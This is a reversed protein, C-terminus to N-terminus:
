LIREKLELLEEDDPLILLWDSLEKDARERQGNEMYWEILLKSFMVYEQERSLAGSLRQGLSLTCECCPIEGNELQTWLADFAEQYRRLVVSKVVKPANVMLWQLHEKMMIKASQDNMQAFIAVVMRVDEATYAKAEKLICAAVPANTRYQWDKQHQFASRYFLEKTVPNCYSGYLEMLRKQPTVDLHLTVRLTDEVAHAYVAMMFEQNRASIYGAERKLFDITYEYLIQDEGYRNPRYWYSSSAPSLTYRYGYVPALVFKGAHSLYQLILATDGGYSISKYISMEYSRLVSARYLKGWLQRLYWHIHPFVSSLNKRTVVLEEPVVNSAAVNGTTGDILETGLIVLDAGHKELLPAATCLFEPTMVDDADVSCFAEIDPRETVIRKVYRLWTDLKNEEEHYVVINDHGSAYRRCIEYTSDTSAHDLLYYTWEAGTQVLVSEITQAITKEANYAMTLIACKM